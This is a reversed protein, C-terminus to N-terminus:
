ISIVEFNDGLHFKPCFEKDKNRNKDKDIM